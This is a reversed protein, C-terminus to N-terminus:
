SPRSLIFCVRFHRLYVVTAVKQSTVIRVMRSDTVIAVAESSTCRALLYLDKECLAEMSASIIHLLRGELLQRVGIDRRSGGKGEEDGESLLRGSTLGVAHHVDRPDSPYVVPDLKFV